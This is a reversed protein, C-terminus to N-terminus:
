PVPLLRHRHPQQFLAEQHGSFVIVPLLIFRGAGKSVKKGGGGEKEGGGERREKLMKLTIKYHANGVPVYVHQM